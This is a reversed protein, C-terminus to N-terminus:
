RAHALIIRDCKRNKPVCSHCQAVESALLYTPVCDRTICTIGPRVDRTYRLTHCGGRGEEGERGTVQKAFSGSHSACLQPVLVYRSGTRWITTGLFSMRCSRVGGYVSPWSNVSRAMVASALFNQHPRALRRLAIALCSLQALTRVTFAGQSDPTKLSVITQVGVFPFFLLVASLPHTPPNPSVTFSLRAQPM